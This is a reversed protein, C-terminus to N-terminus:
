GNKSYYEILKEMFAEKKTRGIPFKCGDQMEVTTGAVNKIHRINLLCYKNCRIFTNAPLRSEEEKLTGWLRIVDDETHYTIEHGVCEVYMITNMRVRLYSEKAHLLVSEEKQCVRYVVKDLAKKLGFYTIPKVIFDAADVSYGRAACSSVNTVFVIETVSDRQRLMQSASMGDIRPMKIDMFVIDFQGASKSLFYAPDEFRTIEFIQKAIVEREYRCLNVSLLEADQADDDLIAVRIMMDAGMGQSGGM